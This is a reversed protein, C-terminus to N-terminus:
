GIVVRQGEDTDEVKFGLEAIEERLRDSEAWDKRERAEAREDLLVQAEPPITIKEEKNEIDHLNLGLIKDFQIVTKLNIRKDKLATWLVALAEPMNLDDNLADLFEVEVHEDTIANSVILRIQQKLKEFGNQAAELAEWSFALQRRYHAQLLFYRYALPSLNKTKLTQLTIFNNESKAMKGNEIVLFEGHLWFNVWPKKGTTAESQAIENTHHIPVHDIGGCHIDFQEGLYKMAMASCEIHWGPFGKRGFADWEMQRKEEGSFKWLAFDHSNKKEGLDVRAGAQLDQKDLRALKGYDKLKTTDFYIGDSTEYTYGKDILIQVLDIQEGIHDTAKCWLSPELINLDLLDEKFAQTYFEAIEYATKGERKAGKEMKDEGQDADDTLHGVDTINMIHKVKYGNYKLTRILLDEFVYTRLNGIHAYNYVTPGCAYLGVRNGNLPKFTEKKRTLTNYLKLM